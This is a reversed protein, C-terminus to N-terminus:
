KFLKKHGGTQQGCVPNIGEGFIAHGNVYIPPAYDAYGIIAPHNGINASVDITFGGGSQHLIKGGIPFSKEIMKELTPPRYKRKKQTHHTNKKLNKTKKQTVM